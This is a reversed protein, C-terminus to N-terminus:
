IHILSLILFPPNSWYPLTYLRLPIPPSLTLAVADCKNHFTRSKITSYVNTKSLRFILVLKLNNDNYACRLCVTSVSPKYTQHCAPAHVLAMCTHSLDRRGLHSAMCSVLKQQFYLFSSGPIRPVSVHWM